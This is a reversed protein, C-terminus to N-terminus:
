LADGEIHIVIIKMKSDELIDDIEFYHECRFLWRHLDNGDFCPFDVKDIHYHRREREREPPPYQVGYPPASAAIYSATTAFDTHTSTSIVVSASVPQEGLPGSQHPIDDMPAIVPEKGKASSLASGWIGTNAMRSTQRTSMVSMLSRLEKLVASHQDSTKSIKENAILIEM